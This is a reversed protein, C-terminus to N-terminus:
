GLHCSQRESTCVETPCPEEASRTGTIQFDREHRVRFQESGVVNSPEEIGLVYRVRYLMYAIKARPCALRQSWNFANRVWQSMGRIRAPRKLTGWARPGHAGGPWQLVTPVRCM